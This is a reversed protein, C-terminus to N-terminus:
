KFANTFAERIDGPVEDPISVFNKTENAKYASLAIMEAAFAQDVPSYPKTEEGTMLHHFHRVVNPAGNYHIRGHYPFSYSSPGGDFPLVQIEGDTKGKTTFAVRMLGKTGFMEYLRSYYGNSFYNNSYTGFTGDSLEILCTENDFIDAARAFACLDNSPDVDKFGVPSSHKADLFVDCSFKEACDRCHLDDAKDGGYRQQKCIAAVRAPPVNCWHLLVDLDHTAKEILQGGGTKKNRRFNHFMGHGVINQSFSFSCIKGLEGCDIIEKAKMVIPSYRMVHHVMVPAKYASVFRVIECIKEFTSDLPKELILPIKKGKFKELCELHCFNPSSIIAGDPKVTAIMSEISDFRQPQKSMWACGMNYKADDPEFVASVEIEGRSLEEMDKSHRKGMEGFGIVVIRKM